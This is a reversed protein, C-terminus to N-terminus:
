STLGMVEKAGKYVDHLLVGHEWRAWRGLRHIRPWCDCDNDVAKLGMKWTPDSEDYDPPESAYEISCIGGIISWRYWQDHAYGNYIFIDKEKDLPPAEITRIYYPTSRFEHEHQCILPQPLTSIAVDFEYGINHLGVDNNSFDTELIKWEYREWLTDYVLPLNWSPYAQLYREWATYRAADGYVKKAYGEATGLRVYQVFNDPYVPSIGPIPEHLYMAGPLVSKQKISFITVNAGETEECAHAAILGAPGCGLIAVNM